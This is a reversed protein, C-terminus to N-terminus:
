FFDVRTVDGGSAQGEYGSWTFFIQWGQSTVNLSAFINKVVVRQRVDCKSRHSKELGETEGGVM